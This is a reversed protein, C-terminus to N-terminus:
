YQRMSQHNSLTRTVNSQRNGIILQKYEEASMPNDKTLSAIYEVYKCDSMTEVSEIATMTNPKINCM